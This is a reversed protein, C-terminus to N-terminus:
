ERKRNIIRGLGSRVRGVVGSGAQAYEEPEPAADEPSEADAEPEEEWAELADAAATDEEIEDIMEVAYAAAEAPDDEAEAPAAEKMPADVAAGNADANTSTPAPPTASFAVRGNQLSVWGHISGTQVFVWGDVEPKYLTVEDGKHLDGIDAGVTDPYARINIWTGPIQSLWAQGAPQVQPLDPLGDPPIPSDTIAPTFAVKGGQLSVWGYVDGIRIYVWGNYEPSYLTVVDGVRLDGIDAGVTDPYTRVNVWDSPIQLLVYQGIPQVQPLDPLDDPPIPPEPTTPVATFTVKGDQRWVWGELSGADVYVWGDVEPTFLTVVDGKHLDGLDQGSENPYDRVNIWSSPIQTVAYQGVPTVEPLSPPPADTSSFEVKGGQRSVWGQLAGFKVRVWGDVEPTYLTLQDGVHLDGVDKGYANPYARVNVWDSPMNSLVFQGTASTSPAAPLYYRKQLPILWPIVERVRQPMTTSTFKQTIWSKFGGLMDEFGVLGFGRAYYYKEWPSAAPRGGDDLYAHLEAVDQLQIGSQFSLQSYIRELRLYTVATGTPKSPVAAGTSKKRWMVVATRKFLQGIEFWRPVWASGYHNNESLLYIDVGGPSTDTGRYIFVDDAWLEEWQSNKVTYFVNNPEVQTQTIENSGLNNVLEYLRGDGRLYDLLDIM